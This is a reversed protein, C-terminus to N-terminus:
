IHAFLEITLEYNEVEFEKELAHSLRVGDVHRWKMTVVVRSGEDRVRLSDMEHFTPNEPLHYHTSRFLTEPQTCIALKELNKVAEVINEPFFKFEIESQYM